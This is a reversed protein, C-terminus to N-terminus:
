YFREILLWKSNTVFLGDFRLWDIMTLPTKFKPLLMPLSVQFADLANARVLSREEDNACCWSDAFRTPALIRSAMMHCPDVAMEQEVPLSVAQAIVSDLM